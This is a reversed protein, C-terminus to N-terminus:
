VVLDALLMWFAALLGIVVAATGLGRQTGRERADLGLAVGAAAFAMPAGIWFFGAGLVAGVVAFALGAVAPNALRPLVLWFVVGFAVATAALAILYERTGSDDDRAYASIMALAILVFAAIAIVRDRPQGAITPSPSATTM